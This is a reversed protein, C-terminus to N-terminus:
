KKKLNKQIELGMWKGTHAIYGTKRKKLNTKDNKIKGATFEYRRQYSFNIEM